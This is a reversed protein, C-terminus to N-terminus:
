TMFLGLPYPFDCIKTKFLTLTKPLPDGVEVQNKQSYCGVVGLNGDFPEIM